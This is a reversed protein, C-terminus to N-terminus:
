KMEHKGSVGDLLCMLHGCGMWLFWKENTVSAHIKGGRGLNGPFGM